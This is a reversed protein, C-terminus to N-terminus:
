YNVQLIILFIFIGVQLSFILAEATSISFSLSVLNLPMFMSEIRFSPLQLRRRCLLTHTHLLFHFFYYYYYPSQFFLSSLLSLSLSLAKPPLLSDLLSDSSFSFRDKLTRKLKKRDAGSLRQHSRLEMAKKFMKQQKNNTTQQKNNTTTTTTTYQSFTLHNISSM